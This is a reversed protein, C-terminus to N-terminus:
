SEIVIVPLFPTIPNSLYVDKICNSLNNNLVLEVETLNNINKYERLKRLYEEFKVLPTEIYEVDDDDCYIIIIDNMCGIFTITYLNDYDFALCVETLNDAGDDRMFRLLKELEYLKM